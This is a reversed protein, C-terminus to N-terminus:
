GASHPMGVSRGAKLINQHQRWLIAEEVKTYVIAGERSPNDRNETALTTRAVILMQLIADM